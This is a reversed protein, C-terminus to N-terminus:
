GQLLRLWINKRTLDHEHLILCLALATGEVLFLAVLLLSLVTQHGGGIVNMRVGQKGGQDSIVFRLSNAGSHLYERLDVDRGDVGCFHVAADGVVRGNITLEDLCDDPSLHFRRSSLSSLTMTLDVQIRKTVSPISIPIAAAVAKGNPLTTYSVNEFVPQITHQMWLLLVILPVLAASGSLLVHPRVLRAMWRLRGIDKRLMRFYGAHSMVLCLLAVLLANRTFLVILASPLQPNIISNWYHLPYIWRTCAGVLVTVALLVVGRSDESVSHWGREMAYVIMLPLIWVMYQPSLVPSFVLMLLLTALMASGGDGAKGAAQIAALRAILITGALLLISAALTVSPWAGDLEYAGHGFLVPVLRGSLNGVLLVVSAWTSEIQIGRASHYELVNRVISWTADWGMLTIPVATAAAGGIICGVVFRWRHRRPATVLLAPLLLVPAVKLAIAVALSAGSVAIYGKKHAKWAFFLALMVLLDYRPFFVEAGMLGLTIIAGVPLLLADFSDFFIACLFWIAAFLLVLIWAWTKAFEMGTPAQKALFFVSAALPPYESQVMAGPNTRATSVSGAIRQFVGIDDSGRIADVSGLAMSTFLVMCLVGILLQKPM